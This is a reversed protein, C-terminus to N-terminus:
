GGATFSSPISIGSTSPPCTALSFRSRRSTTPAALPSRPIAPSLSTRISVSASSASRDPASPIVGFATTSLNTLLFNDPHKLHFIVTLPGAAEVGAISKYPTAKPSIVTGDRISDISWAVDRATM